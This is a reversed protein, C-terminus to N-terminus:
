QISISSFHSITDPLSIFRNKFLNLKRLNTLEGIEKPLTTLQNNKLNLFKLAKLRGIELPILALRNNELEMRELTKLAGIEPPLSILQNDYLRLEKLATLQGFEPPLTKLQNHNLFLETLSAWKGIESPLVTFKNHSAWLTTLRTLEGIEPPLAELQNSSIALEELQKLHRIETPLTRLCNRSLNLVKLNSFSFIEQPITTLTLEMLMLNTQRDRVRNTFLFDRAAHTIKDKLNNPDILSNEISTRIKSWQTGMPTSKRFLGRSCLFVNENQIKKYIEALKDASILDFSRGKVQVHFIARYSRYLDKTMRYLTARGKGLSLDARIHDIFYQDREPDLRSIFLSFYEGLFIPSNAAQRCSKSLVAMEEPVFSAIMALEQNRLHLFQTTIACISKENFQSPCYGKPSEITFNCSASISSVM